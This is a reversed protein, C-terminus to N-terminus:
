VSRVTAGASVAAANSQADPCPNFALAGIEFDLYPMVLQQLDGM